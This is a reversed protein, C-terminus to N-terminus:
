IVMIFRDLIKWYKCPFHHHAMIYAGPSQRTHSYIRFHSVVFFSHTVHLRPLEKSDSDHNRKRACDSQRRSRKCSVASAGAFTLTPTRNVDSITYLSRLISALALPSRSVYSRTSHLTTFSALRTAIPLQSCPFAKLTGKQKALRSFTSHKNTDSM